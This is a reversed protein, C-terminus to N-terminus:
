WPRTAHLFSYSAPHYSLLAVVVTFVHYPKGYKNLPLFHLFPIRTTRLQDRVVSLVNPAYAHMWPKLEDWWQFGATLQTKAQSFYCFTSTGHPSLPQKRLWQLLFQLVINLPGGVSIQHLKGSNRWTKVCRFWHGTILVLPAPVLTQVRM